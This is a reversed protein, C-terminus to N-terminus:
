TRNIERSVTAELAALTQLIGDLDARLFAAGIERGYGALVDAIATRVEPRQREAMREVGRLTEILLGYGRSISKEYEFIEFGSRSHSNQTNQTHNEPEGWGRM